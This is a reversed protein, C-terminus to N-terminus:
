KSGGIHPNCWNEFEGYEHLKNYLTKITIGLSHAAQTKNGKFHTLARIIYQKELDHLTVSPNYPIDPLPEVVTPKTEPGLNVIRSVVEGEENKFYIECKPMNPDSVVKFKM